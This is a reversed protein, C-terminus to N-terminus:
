GAKRMIHNVSGKNQTSDDCAKKIKKQVKNSLQSSHKDVLKVCCKTFSDHNRTNAKCEEIGDELKKHFSKPQLKIGHKKLFNFMDAEATLQTVAIITLITTLKM